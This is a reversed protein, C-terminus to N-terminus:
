QQLVRYYRSPYNSSGPDVLNLPVMGAPNTALSTWNILDTSAQLVYNSGPAGVFQMQFIRNSLTESLFQVPLVTFFASAAVSNVYNSEYASASVTANSTLNFAGSYLFSNPTPLSGDLTYYIAANPDPPQLTIGVKTFFAGGNPAIVPPALAPTGPLSNIWGAMVALANSDVLARALTPMKIAPNTTNMRQWIMSRWVDKSAVIRANDYGLSISAPYNTIHQSPLPTDYRADFTIGVGGPQHCQACNADLYSRAREQFSTNINALASLAEFNTIEAEDFAPDFLGLRNLTRLQNDTVGTAAYAQSGNLQRTNLGLVYNAVPTHCQLCDSPSPYYWTQTTVNGANTIAINEYLSSSLLDADSNDPRWKYTVGYVAGNIDRILLRTELRHLINTNSTDTNLQFTKVFVTGAPFAWSGTPAFGIQSSPTAAGGSNPVSLYRTKVAGDSWLPVNPSYPILGGAPSMASTNTFVGTLSLLPPLSGAFTTPMNFFAPATGRNTMGYPQGTGTAVTISVPASTSMLGSSSVAVATLTYGGAGLGTATVAYPVNTAAGVFVSNTYFDVQSIADYLAEADASITVSAAATYTSNAAPGTLLVSPPPNTYTVGNVTVNDFTATALSSNDHSTLALGVYATSAMAFTNTGQPTWNVGDASRYATFTNGLRVLKVWYPANLGGTDNYSTGGGNSSRYQWTVGNGPTVAVYANAAGSSLNDRIMLGAKSWANINQISTVRAINTCDGTTTQYVFYFADASGQIDSGSGSVIFVGNSFYASGPLGVSGIDGVQWPPPPYSLSSVFSATAVGSNVYGPEAAIASVLTTTTLVFPATYLTSNTTPTTGDLTYYISVGPTSDSLTVTVSNTFVGANPAIGPAALFTGNGFVSVAYQAGMYVKGNAVAPTTFEVAPGPNDRALDQSSNYLEQSVNTANYAYLVAPGGSGAASTDIAWLIGNNNGDASLSPTAGAGFTNPSMATPTMGMTANSITFSKLNDGSGAVYFLGNFYAASSWMGGVAGVLSQVINTDGSASYHGMNDRDILYITAAKSGGLLLHPHAPSGASDPLLCLGASSVDLDQAFLTAQNSPTFYDLLALGNTGNLKLFSDGYDNTSDYQGNGTNLYVCGNSDAAPGNGTMWIGGYGANPTTNFVATQALTHADYAFVWGYYPPHDGPSAYCIYIMGNALLLAPRCTERLGNWLIHGSGDVDNQGPTGTGPYNTCNIVAPSNFDTRELGTTIDLAHLRHMYVTDAGSIEKTFAEVYMTGTAPDIVPTATVGIVPYINGNADGGPVPSVGSASLFSATWYPAPVYSDADFAYVSDHETVVYLVNHTGKGPITVNTAILPQALIYGDVNYTFLKGFNNVNVNVPTLQTENTNAGQRSNDYRYTFVPQVPPASDPTTFSQSPYAWVAGASNTALATYYYTTNTTLGTVSFGFVSTQEGLDVSNSWAGAVTGGDNPGYFLTVWTTQNGTSVVQGLLTASTPQVNDAPLNTVVPASVVPPQVSVSVNTFTSTNIAGNNHATVALGALLGSNLLIGQTTGVQTWSNGNSSYFASFNTGSRTLKVWVPATLGTINQFNCGGNATSRWQFSVGNGITAVVAVNAAGATSDNRFMVGAKSWPDSSQIALVRAVMSGDGSVSESAFNFQDATNWIDAGGGTITWSGNAYSASGALAPSGIDADSWGPPLGAWAAGALLLLFSIICRRKALNLCM